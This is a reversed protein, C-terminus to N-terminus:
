FLDKQAIEPIKIKNKYYKFKKKANLRQIEAFM